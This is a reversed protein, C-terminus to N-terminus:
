SQKNWIIEKRLYPKMNRTRFATIIFGDKELERYVVVLTNELHKYKKCAYLEGIKGCLVVDPAHITDLVEQRLGAIETHNDIIHLWREDTLRILKKSVSFVKDIVM